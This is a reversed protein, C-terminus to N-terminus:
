PALRAAAWRNPAEAGPEVFYLRDEGPSLALLRPGDRVEFRREGGRRMGLLRWQPEMGAMDFYQVLITGEATWFVQSARSYSESWAQQAEPTANQPAAERIRRFAQFPIPISEYRQGDLGFLYVSDSLAFLAAITDGRVAVDTFGSFRYVGALEAPHEPVPFFSRVLSDGEVSWLHVLPSPDGAPLRGTFVVLSDNVPVGDYLPALPVRATRIVRDGASDFLALSGDMGAALIEGSPLRMATSLREFEGPGSGRRGFYALLEGSRGYRRVQQERSDAVLFGGRPDPVVNPTVNIVDQNEVLAIRDEWQVFADIPHPAFGSTGIAAQLPPSAVRPLLEFHRVALIAAIPIVFFAGLKILRPFRGPFIGSEVRQDDDSRSPTVHKSM